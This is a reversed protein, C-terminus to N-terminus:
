CVTPAMQSRSLTIPPYIPPRFYALSCGCCVDTCAAVGNWIRKEGIGAGCRVGTQCM